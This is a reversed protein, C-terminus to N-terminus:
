RMIFGFEITTAANYLNTARGSKSSIWCGRNFCQWLRPILPVMRRAASPMLPVIAPERWVTSAMRAYRRESGRKASRSCLSDKAEEIGKM